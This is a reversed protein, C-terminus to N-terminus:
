PGCCSLEVTTTGLMGVADSRTRDDRAPTSAPTRSRSRRCRASAPRCPRDPARALSFDLAEADLRPLRLALPDIRLVAVAVMGFSMLYRKGRCVTIM